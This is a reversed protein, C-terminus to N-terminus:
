FAFRVGVRAQGSDAQAGAWTYRGEGFVGFMPTARWELGGGALWTGSTLGDFQAGGGGFIYPAICINGLELPYRAILRGGLNWVGHADGDRVNGEIGVGLYRMFFYSVAVGGGFDDNYERRQVGDTYSGFLDIQLEQDKFCPEAPPMYGKDKANIVEHGAFASTAVGLCAILNLATTKM